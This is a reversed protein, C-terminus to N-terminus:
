ASTAFALPEDFRVAVGRRLPARWRAGRPRHSPEEDIWRVVTASATLRGRDTFIVSEFPLSLSVRVRGGVPLQRWNFSTFRLGGSSVDTTIGKEILRAPEADTQVELFVELCLRRHARRDTLTSIDQSDPRVASHPQV